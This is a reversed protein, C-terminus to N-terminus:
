FNVLNQWELVLSPPLRVPYENGGQGPILLRIPETTPLQSLIEQLNYQGVNPAPSEKAFMDEAIFESRTTIIKLPQPHAVEVVDPFGVVRLSVSTVESDTYRKFFILQWPNGSRDRLSHRSKYVVQGPAEYTKEVLAAAPQSTFAGFGVLLSFCLILILSFKAFIKM